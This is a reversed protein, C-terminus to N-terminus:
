CDTFDLDEQGKTKNEWLKSNSTESNFCGRVGYGANAFSGGQPRARLRFMNANNADEELEIKYNGSITNWSQQTGTYSTAVADKCNAAGDNACGSVSVYESIGSANTPLTSYEAHHAQAAKLYSAVAVSAEKQKAKDASGLFSPVAISSLIGIIMVVVILEVLTFGNEIISREASIKKLLEIKIRQSFTNTERGKKKNLVSVTKQM